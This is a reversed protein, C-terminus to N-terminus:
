VKDDALGDKARIHNFYYTEANMSFSALAFLVFVIHLIFRILVLEWDDCPCVWCVVSAIFTVCTRYIALIYFMWVIALVEVIQV